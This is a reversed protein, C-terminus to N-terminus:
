TKPAILLKETSITKTAIFILALSLVALFGIHISATFGEGLVYYQIALISHTYPIFYLGFRLTESLRVYDVLFGTFFMMTGIIAIASAINAASRIGRTRTIFPLAIGITVLITFFAVLSHLLLLWPDIPITASGGLAMNTLIIYAIFGLADALATLLGLLTAAFLKSYIIMNVPLPQSLTMEITKREREGIIGDIIYSTAPTIVVSLALVLIRALLGRLEEEVGAKGGTITVVRTYAGIPSLIAGITGNIRSLELLRKVKLESLEQSFGNIVNYAIGEARMSAQLAAKRYVIVQASRNVSSANHSFGEPIVIVLDIDPDAIISVNNALVVGIGMAKFANELRDVLERSSVTINLLPDTYNNDDLDVIAVSVPQQSILTLSLFGLLPFFFLPLLLSTAITKYDRSLDLLEKWLLVRFGYGIFEVM